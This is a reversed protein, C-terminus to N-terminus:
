WIRVGLASDAMYNNLAARVHRAVDLLPVGVKSRFGLETKVVAGTAM